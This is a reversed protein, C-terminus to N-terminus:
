VTVLEREGAPAPQAASLKNPWWAKRGLLVLIVSGGVWVVAALVHITLLLDIKM